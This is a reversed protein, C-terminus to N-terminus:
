SKIELLDFLLTDVYRKLQLVEARSTQLHTALSARNYVARAIEGCLTEILDLSTEAVTRKAGTMGRSKLIFKVKQRMTPLRRGEELVFDEAGMVAEDPALHDLTERFAERFEAATGRYSHREASALDLIGQIYSQCASPVLAGLTRILVSESQSFKPESANVKQPSSISLINLETMARKLSNLRNVYSARLNRGHALRILQQWSEDVVTLKDEPVVTTFQQRCDQFYSRALDISAEKDRASNVTVAKSAKLDAILQDIKAILEDTM